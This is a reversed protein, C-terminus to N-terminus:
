ISRYLRNYALYLTDPEVQSEFHLLLQKTANLTADLCKSKEKLLKIITKDPYKSKRMQRLDNNINLLKRHLAIRLEDVDNKTIM